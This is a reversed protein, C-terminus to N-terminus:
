AVDFRVAAVDMVEGSSQLGILCDFFQQEGSDTPQWMSPDTIRVVADIEGGFPCVTEAIEVQERGEAQAIVISAIIRQDECTHNAVDISIWVNAVNDVVEPEIRVGAVSVRDYSILRAEGRPESGAQERRVVLENRGAHISESVRFRNLRVEDARGVEIGNLLVVAGAELSGLELYVCDLPFDADIDLAQTYEKRGGASRTEWPGELLLAKKM